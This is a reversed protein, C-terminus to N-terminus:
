VKIRVVKEIEVYSNGKERKWQKLAFIELINEPVIEFIGGETLEVKM